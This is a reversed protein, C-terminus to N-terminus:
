NLCVAAAARISLFPDMASGVIRPGHEFNNLLMCAWKRYTMFEILALLNM